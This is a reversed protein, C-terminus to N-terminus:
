ALRNASRFKKRASRGRARRLAVGFEECHSARRNASRRLVSRVAFFKVRVAFIKATRPWSKATRVFNRASRLTSGECHSRVRRVAGLLAVRPGRLAVGFKECHSALIKASRRWSKRLAFCPGECQSTGSKASSRATRGDPGLLAVGPTRVAGLLAVGHTPGVAGGVRGLFQESRECSGLPGHSPRSECMKKCWLCGGGGGVVCFRVVDFVLETM